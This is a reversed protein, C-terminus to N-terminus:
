GLRTAAILDDFLNRVTLALCKGTAIMAVVASTADAVNTVGVATTAPVVNTAPVVTTEPAVTKALMANMTGEELRAGIETTTEAPNGSGSGVVTTTGARRLGTELGMVITLAVVGAIMRLEVTTTVLLLDAITMATVAM